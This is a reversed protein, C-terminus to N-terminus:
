QNKSLESEALRAAVSNPYQSKLQSFYQNANELNGKDKEILGLKLLADSLKVHNPFDTKLALFSGAAKDLLMMDKKNGQWQVLYIEGIWYHANAVQESKPFRKNFNQFANLAETYRKSRVLNYALQYSDQESANSEKEPKSTELNSLSQESKLDTKHSDEKSPIKPSFASIKLIKNKSDAELNQSNQKSAQGNQSGSNATTMKGLRRDIDQYFTDLSKKLQKIVEEQEEIMGRLNSVERQLIEIQSVAFRAGRDEASTASTAPSSVGSGAANGSAASAGSTASSQSAQSASPSASSSSNGTRSEVAPLAMVSHSLFLLSLLFYKM